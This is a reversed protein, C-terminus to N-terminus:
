WVKSTNNEDIPVMVSLGHREARLLVKRCRKVMGSKCGAMTQAFMADGFAILPIKQDPEPSSPRWKRKALATTCAAEENSGCYRRYTYPAVYNPRRKKTRKGSNGYASNVFVSAMSEDARQRRGIYSLLRLATHEHSYFRFLRPLHPLLSQLYDGFTKLSVTKPSSLNGEIADIGDKKRRKRMKLMTKNYGAIAYYQTTSMLLVQHRDGTHGDVSVHIDRLGPDSVWLHFHTDLEELKFDEFGLDPLGDAKSKRAFLFEVAYGDTRV